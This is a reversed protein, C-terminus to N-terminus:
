GLVWHVAKDEGLGPTVSPLHMKKHHNEAPYILVGSELGLCGFTLHPFLCGLSAKMHKQQYIEASDQLVSNHSLFM